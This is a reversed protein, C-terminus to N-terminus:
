AHINPVWHHTGHDSPVPFISTKKVEKDLLLTWSAEEASFVRQLRTTSAEEAGSSADHVGSSFQRRLVLYNPASSADHSGITDLLLVFLLARSVQSLCQMCNSLLKPHFRVCSATHLLAGPRLWQM